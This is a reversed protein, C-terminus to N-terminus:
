CASVKIYTYWIKLIMDINKGLNRFFHHQRPGHMVVRFLRPFLFRVILFKRERM